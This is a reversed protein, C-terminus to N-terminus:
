VCVADNGIGAQHGPLEQIKDAEGHVQHLLFHAVVTSCFGRRAVPEDGSDLRVGRTRPRSVFAKSRESILSEYRDSQQHALRRPKHTARQVLQRLDEDPRGAERPPSSGGGM